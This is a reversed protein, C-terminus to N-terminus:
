RLLRLFRFTQSVVDQSKNKGRPLKLLIHKAILYQKLRGAQKPQGNPQEFIVMAQSGQQKSSLNFRIQVFPQMLDNSDKREDTIVKNEDLGLLKCIAYCNGENYEAQEFECIIWLSLSTAKGPKTKVRPLIYISGDSDILGRFFDEDIKVSQAINARITQKTKIM